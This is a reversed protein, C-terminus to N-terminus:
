CQTPTTGELRMGGFGWSFILRLVSRGLKREPEARLSEAVVGPTQLGGLRITHLHRLGMLLSATRFPSWWGIKVEGLQNRYPELWAAAESLRLLGRTRLFPALLMEDHLLSGPGLMAKVFAPPAPVATAASATRRPPLCSQCIRPLVKRADPQPHFSFFKAFADSDKTAKSNATRRPLLPLRSEVSYVPAPPFLRRPSVKSMHKAAKVVNNSEM